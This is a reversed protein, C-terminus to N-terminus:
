LRTNRYVVCCGYMCVFGAVWLGNSLCCFGKLKTGSGKDRQGLSMPKPFQLEKTERGVRGLFPQSWSMVVAYPSLFCFFCRSWMPHPTGRLGM